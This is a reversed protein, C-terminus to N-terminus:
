FILTKKEVQDIRYLLLQSFDDDFKKNWDSVLRNAEAKAKEDADAEFEIQEQRDLLFPTFPNVKRVNYIM